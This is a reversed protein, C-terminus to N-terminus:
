LRDLCSWEVSTTLASSSKDQEGPGAVMADEETKTYEEQGFRVSKGVKGVKPDNMQIKKM